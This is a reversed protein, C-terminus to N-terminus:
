DAFKYRCFPCLHGNNILAVEYEDRQFLLQCNPCQIIQYCQQPVICRFYKPTMQKCYKTYDIVFIESSDINELCKADLVISGRERGGDSQEEEDEDGFNMLQQYFLDDDDGNQSDIDSEDDLNMVNVDEDEQEKEDEDNNGGKKGIGKTTTTTPERKILEMAESHKLTDVVEFQVLPLCEFSLM